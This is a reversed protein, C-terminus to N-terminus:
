RGKRQRGTLRGPPEREPAPEPAPAAPGVADVAARIAATDDTVGDGVPAPPAPPSRPSVEPAALESVPAPEDLTWGAAELAAIDDGYSAIHFGHKPHRYRAM